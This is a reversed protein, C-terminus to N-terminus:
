RCRERERAKDAMQTAVARRLTDEYIVGGVAYPDRWDDAPRPRRGHAEEVAARQYATTTDLRYPDDDTGTGIYGYSMTM